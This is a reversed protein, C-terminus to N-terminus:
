VDSDGNYTITSCRLDPGHKEKRRIKVGSKFRPDRNSGCGSQKLKHVERTSDGKQFPEIAVADSVPVM